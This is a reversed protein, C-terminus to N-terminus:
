VPREEYTSSMKKELTLKYKERKCEAKWGQWPLGGRVFYLLMYALSELDDRRSQDINLQTNISCFRLTGTMKIGEKYPNHQLTKSNRYKKALGFDIIHVLPTQEGVGMVM